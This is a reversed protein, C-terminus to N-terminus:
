WRMPFVTSPKSGMSPIHHIIELTGELVAIRYIDGLPVLGWLPISFDPAASSTQMWTWEEGEPEDQRNGPAGAWIGSEWPKM